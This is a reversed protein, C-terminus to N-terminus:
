AFDVWDCQVGSQDIVWYPLTKIWNGNERELTHRIVDDRKERPLGRTVDGVLHSISM